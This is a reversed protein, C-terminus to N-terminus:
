ENDKRFKDLTDKVEDYKRYCSKLETQLESGMGTFRVLFEADPRALQVGTAGVKSECNCSDGPLNSESARREPRNRLSALLTNIRAADAAKQVQKDDEVKRIQEKLASETKSARITLLDIQRKSEQAIEVRVEDRAEQVKVSHWYYTGAVALACIAINTFIKGLTQIPLIKSLFMLM